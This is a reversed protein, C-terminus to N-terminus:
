IVFKRILTIGGGLIALVAMTLAIYTGTVSGTVISLVVSADDIDDEKPKNNDPTSDIDDTDDHDNYDKSIEAVNTKLGLNNHGNIWRFTIEIVKSDGPQLLVDKLQDTTVSKGDESLKWKPNDKKEFKLGEPIYDRIEKAYGELEGENTVRIQYTFKIVADEISHTKLDLKVVPEPEVGFKHKTETVQTKGDLTVTVKSIIKELSLDFYKVKIKEEDIDDEDDDDNDPESDTDEVPNGEEDTDNTIEATNIVIRDTATNPLSVKFAIKVDKYDPMTMTQTDFADLLNDRGTEDEQAKSLYDTRINDALRVDTTEEGDATYMKWRYEKNIEHDPLYVLGDPLDDKVEDAYGAMNGENFIRLTYIIIDGNAVEVPNKTHEYKYNKNEDQTFVPIRNNIDNDNVKTIFKRLALDFKEIVVKEYDDDDQQNDSYGPLDDDKPLTVNDEQSDRDKIKDGNSDSFDSIEAINTLIQAIGTDKVVCKIKVDIYDLKGTSADFAELIVKDTGEKRNAYITDRNASFETDPSTITTHITRNDDIEWGYSANFEDNVFELYEPLHDTIERVYGDIQGENYVRITYIVEDGVAVHVPTKPHTYNATTEGSTLPTIDVDPERIYKGNDDVLEKSNVATIFKRLSLDFYQGLLVLDEYDDDDQIHDNEPYTNPDIPEPQSDRDTITVDGESDSHATIAAINKLKTDTEQVTAIVECEIQVDKFPIDGTGDFAPIVTGELKKTTITKGDASAVWQNETNVRSNTALKLGNPLYDTIEKVIAPEDGENYVRITYLVIDGTKVVLPNKPHVKEATTKNTTSSNALDQKEKDSITPERDVQPAIGNIETIFKRLALDFNRGPIVLDEYDDDDQINKDDPYQDPNVTDPESDRDKVDENGEDDSHKTIEAINKLKIDVDGPTAVVRCEVQVDAYKLEGSGTFGTLKTGELYNTTITKNDSGLVWRYTSNITSQSAPIFELGDPLYDTIEKVYGDTDGENYVRIIYTVRDGKKVEVPTKPHSYNATTKGSTLPSTDVQPERTYKGNEKLETDNVKIIFKRLALDFIRKPMVLDEYDDDDQINKDDPYQDPNVTDPESDRDKIDENGEDDSHKTIEAINKLKIETDEPSAVVRCEVQVDAYKLEGSGTFGTLEKSALYDTTITKNDKGLVWRYTSNITSQNAPIFELGDPLYDTIEKAFGDAEGENYVRIIYTVRDGKKVEVPTKPHSYNATTKGSTLPSTDVQPERTYKGNEKLETDNVKIIFKRLALDFIKAKYNDEDTYTTEEREVQAVPQDNNNSTGWYSVTTKFYEGSIKLDVTSLEEAGTIPIIIYFEEGITDQLSSFSSGDAKQYTANTITRGNMTITANITGGNAPGEIKFPGVKYTNGVKTHKKTLGKTLTYEGGPAIQENGTAAQILYKYLKKCDEARDWGNNDDDSLSHYNRTAGQIQNIWPDFNGNTGVDYKDGQNTFHWIALQQVLDIDDDTLSTETLKAKQLLLAKYDSATKKEDASASPKPLVYANNLLWTVANMRTTDLGSLIDSLNGRRTYTKKETVGQDSGFGVGAKVCYFTYKYNITNGNDTTEGIKYVVREDVKYGYGSNRLEKIMLDMTNQTIAAYTTNFSNLLIITILTTILILSVGKLKM